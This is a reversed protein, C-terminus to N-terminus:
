HWKLFATITTVAQNITQLNPTSPAQQPYLLALPIDLALIRYLWRAHTTVSLQQPQALRLHNYYRLADCPNLLLHHQLQQQM